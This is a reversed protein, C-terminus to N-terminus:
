EPSALEPRPLVEGVQVDSCAAKLKAFLAAAKPAGISSAAAKEPTGASQFAERSTALWFTVHKGSGLSSFFSVRGLPYRVAALAAHIEKWAEEYADSNVQEVVMQMYGASYESLTPGQGRFDLAELRSWVESNHPALLAVDGRDYEQAAKEGEPGIREAVSSRLARLADYEAFSSFSRLTIFTSGSHQLFFGRGDTTHHLALVKLWGRRADLFVHQLKPDLTDIHVARFRASADYAGTTLAVCPPPPAAVAHPGFLSAALLLSLSPRPLSPRRQASYARAKAQRVTRPSM